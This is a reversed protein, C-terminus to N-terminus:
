EESDELLNKKRKKILREADSLSFDVKFFVKVLWAFFIIVLIPILCSTVLMVAVAEVFRSLLGTVYDVVTGAADKIWSVFKDITSDDEEAVSIREASSITQNITSEYTNYITESVRVSFPIALYVAISTILLRYSLSRVKERNLIIGGCLLACALPVIFAFSVYGM